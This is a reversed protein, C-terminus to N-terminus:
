NLLKIIWTSILNNSIYKKTNEKEKKKKDYDYAFFYDAVTKLDNPKLKRFNNLAVRIVAKNLIKYAYKVNPINGTEFSRSRVKQIAIDDIDKYYKNPYILFEYNLRLQLYEVISSLTHLYKIEKDVIENDNYFKEIANNTEFFDFDLEKIMKDLSMDFLYM